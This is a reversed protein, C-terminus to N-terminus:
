HSKKGQYSLASKALYPSLDGVPKVRKKALGLPLESLPKPRKPKLPPELIGMRYRKKPTPEVWRPKPPGPSLESLLKKKAM